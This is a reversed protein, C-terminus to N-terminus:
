ADPASGPSQARHRSGSARKPMAGNSGRGHPDASIQQEGALRWRAVTSYVPEPGLVSRVLSADGATWSSTHLGAIAEAVPRLDAHSRMRGLTLHPRFKHDDLEVGARRVAVSVRNALSVLGAVDGDIGAWLVRNDFRGAGEIRLQLPATRDTETGVNRELAPVREHPVEGLFALTIHWRRGPIWRLGDPASLRIDELAATAEAVIRDPLTLAVFLRM